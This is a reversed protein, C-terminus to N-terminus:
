IQQIKVSGYDYTLVAIDLISTCFVYQTSITFQFYTHIFTHIYSDHKHIM